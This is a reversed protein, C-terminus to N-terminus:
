RGALLARMMRANIVAQGGFHNNFVIFIRQTKRKLKQIRPLWEALEAEPYLYDYREYAHRHTYWKAANRGHFRIYGTPTTATAFPPVLGPLRPEDVCVIGLNLRRLVVGTEPELWGANRFEVQIELDPLQERFRALYDVNEPNNHFSYPFQAVVCALRNNEALPQLAERYAAFVAPTAAERKHTMQDNAKVAFLFGPPTKAQMQHLQHRNPMRYYTFNLETFSFEAAYRALMNAPRTGPPYVPGVWDKYSFGSTGILIM